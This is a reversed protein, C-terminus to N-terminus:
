SPAGLTFEIIAIEDDFDVRTRMGVVSRGTAEEVTPRSADAVENHVDRRIQRVLDPHDNGLLTRELQTIWGHLVVHVEDPGVDARAGTPGRGTRQKCAAVVANTIAELAVPQPQSGLM